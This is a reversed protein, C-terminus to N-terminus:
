EADGLLRVHTFRTWTRYGRGTLALTTGADAKKDLVLTGDLELRRLAFSLSMSLHDAPLERRSNPQIEAEVMMRYEGRDLVPLREALTDIFANAALSEGKNLISPLEQRVATTTDAFFKGEEGTSFGLYRAWVRLGNWRSSNLIIFKEKVQGTELQSIDSWSSPLSYIDQALIWSLSRVFDATRGTGEDSRDGSKAGVRWLPQTHEPRLMLARCLGPLRDTFADLSEGRQPMFNLAIKGDQESFLSLEVWRSLTARLKAFDPENAGPIHIPGCMAMLDDHGIAGTKAV